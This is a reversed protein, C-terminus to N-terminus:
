PARGSRKAKAYRRECDKCRPFNGPLYLDGHHKDIRGCLAVSVGFANFCQFYHSIGADSWADIAWQPFGLGRTAGGAVFGTRITNDAWLVPQPVGPVIPTLRKISM